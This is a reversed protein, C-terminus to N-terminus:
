SASRRRRELKSLASRLTSGQVKAYVQVSRPDSHGMLAALVRDDAGRSKLDTATSHKTGVYVGVREVGARDCADYWTRRVATESWWGGAQGDPNAFLPGDPDSLRREAPVHAELWEHLRGMVPLVKVGKRKKPGRIEGRVLRDKSAREVRLEDDRWDRVRLVRAESPRLMLDALAYFIGRKSEAIAELVKAQVERSLIKPLREDPEPWPFRPVDFTTRQEAVWSLFSRFGALVNRRTKLGLGKEALAYSWEELSGTTVEWISRGYWAAFHAEAGPQGPKGAWREYDRLTRPARDGAAVRKRFLDLWRRLMPEIGTSASTEPAFESLVDDLARGNAVELEVHSLIAQAMEESEFAIGRFSYLFRASWRRGFDIRWRQARGKRSYPLVKGLILEGRAM